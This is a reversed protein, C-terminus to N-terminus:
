TWYNNVMNHKDFPAMPGVLDREMLQMNTKTSCFTQIIKEAM